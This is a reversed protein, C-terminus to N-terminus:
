HAAAIRHLAWGHDVEVGDLYEDAHGLGLSKRAFIQIANLDIM